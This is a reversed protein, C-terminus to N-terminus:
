AENELKDFYARAQEADRRIQEGLSEVDGFKTEPRLFSYFEVRAQRGYLNGSYDLLHSEVSVREGESVTPRVGVNTVAIHGSGDELWVKSAYVGHRPVIVGEPFYMNITPAGMKHGLRYGSHVTDSLMHPHGLWRRAKEMDGDLILQRIRTSSVIQGDLMVPPIVDCGIGHSECYEKLRETTGRGKYGFCFDHGVVIWGINLERVLSEIFEVWDMQMVRRNFHLFVVNEIGFQRRIIDERGIASNILPVANGFVLTDPHVDFSLVSPVAGIEKARQKTRELLAAHGIHVGDFFGLAIARKIETM